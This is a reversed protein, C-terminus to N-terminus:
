KKLPSSLLPFAVLGGYAIAMLILCIKLKEALADVGVLMIIFMILAMSAAIIKGVLINKSFGVARVIFAAIVMTSFILLAWVKGEINLHYKSYVYIVGIVYFLEAIAGVFVLLAGTNDQKQADMKQLRVMGIIAIVAMVIWCVVRSLYLLALQLFDDFSQINKFADLINVFFLISAIVAFAAVVGFVIYGLFKRLNEM